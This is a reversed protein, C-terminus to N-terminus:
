RRTTRVISPPIEPEQWNPSSVVRRTSMVHWRKHEKGSPESSRSKRSGGTEGTGGKKLQICECFGLGSPSPMWKRQESAGLEVKQIPSGATM